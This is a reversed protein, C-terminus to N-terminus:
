QNPKAKLSDSQAQLRQLLTREADRAEGAELGVRSVSLVSDAPALNGLAIHTQAVRLRARHVRWHDPALTEDYVDLADTCVPLAETPRAARLLVLCLGARTRSTGPAEHGLAEELVTLAERRAGLAQDWDARREHLNSIRVLTEGIVRHVPGFIDRQLALM